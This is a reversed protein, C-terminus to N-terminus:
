YVRIPLHHRFLHTTIHGPTSAHLNQAADWYDRFCDVAIRIHDLGESRRGILSLAVGLNNHVEPGTRIELAKRLADVAKIPEGQLLKLSGLYFYFRWNEPVPYPGSAELVSDGNVGDAWAELLWKEAETWEQRFIGVSCLAWATICHHIGKLHYTEQIWDYAHRKLAQAVFCRQRRHQHSISDRREHICYPCEKELHVKPHIALLRLLFDYDEATEFKPDYGVEQSLRTRVAIPGTVPLYNREFVRFVSNNFLFLPIPVKQSLGSTENTYVAGDLYVDCGKDFAQLCLSLRNPMFADDADLGIWLPTEVARNALERAEGLTTHVSKQILQLQQIKPKSIRVVTDDESADDVVLIHQAGASLASRIARSITGSANRAVIVVTIDDFDM